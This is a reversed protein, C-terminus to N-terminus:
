RLPRTIEKVIADHMADRRREIAPAVYPRKPIQKWGEEHVHSYISDSAVHGEIGGRVAKAPTRKWSSRLTGDGVRLHPGPNIVWPTGRKHRYSGGKSLEKKIERELIFVAKDIGRKLNSKLARNFAQLKVPGKKGGGISANLFIVVAV